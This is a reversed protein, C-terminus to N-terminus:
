FGLGDPSERPDRHAALGGVALGGVVPGGVALGPVISGQEPVCDARHLGDAAPSQGEGPRRRRRPCTKGPGVTLGDQAFGQGWWGGDIAQLRTLFQSETPVMDGPPNQAIQALPGVPDLILQIQVAHGGRFGPRGQPREKTRGPGPAETAHSDDM